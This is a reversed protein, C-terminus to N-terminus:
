TKTTQSSFDVDSEHSCKGRDVLRLSRWCRRTCESWARELFTGNPFSDGHFRFSAAIVDLAEGNLDDYNGFTRFQTTKHCHHGFSTSLFITVLTINLTIHRGSNYGM